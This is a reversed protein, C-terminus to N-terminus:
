IKYVLCDVESLKNYLELHSSLSYLDMVRHIVNPFRKLLTGFSLGFKPTHFHDAEFDEYQYKFSNYKAYFMRKSNAGALIRYSFLNLYVKDTIDGSQIDRLCEVIVFKGDAFTFYINKKGLEQKKIDVILKAQALSAASFYGTFKGDVFYIFRLGKM